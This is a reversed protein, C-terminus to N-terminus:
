NLSFWLLLGYFVLGGALFIFAGRNLVRILARKESDFVNAAGKLSLSVGLFIAALALGYNLFALSLGTLGLGALLLPWKSIFLFTGSLFRNKSQAM